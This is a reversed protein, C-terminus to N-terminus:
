SIFYGRTFFMVVIFMLIISISFYLTKFLSRKNSIFMTSSLFFPYLHLGYRPMGSFTGTLSPILFSLVMFIWYSFRIKKYSYIIIISYWVVFLLEIIAVWYVTNFSRDLFIIKLYRWVVQLPFTIKDQNWIKMSSFVMNWDGQTSQVYLLYGLFAFPILLIAYVHKTFFYRIKTFSISTLTFKNAYLYEFLLYFFLALGNLRTLTALAGVVGGLIWKNQRGMYICLTALFFFLSDNYVAGYFASTPFMLLVLLLFFFMKKYNDLVLLKWVTLIALFFSIHSVILGAILYQYHILSAAFHIILPYFPFFAQQYTFYGSKAISLYHIGDFNGWIYLLYPYNLKYLTNPTFIFNLPLILISIIAFILVIAKWELLFYLTKKIM